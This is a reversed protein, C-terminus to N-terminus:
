QLVVLFRAGSEHGGRVNSRGDEPALGVPRLEQLETSHVTVYYATEVDSWGDPEVAMLRGLTFAFTKGRETVKDAGGIGALEEPRMTSIHAGFAQGDSGPPLEVGPEDMAAFVGRVLANPVSLMLWGSASLYLAGALCYIPRPDGAEKVYAEALDCVAGTVEAATGATDLICGVDDGRTEPFVIRKEVSRRRGAKGTRRLVKKRM